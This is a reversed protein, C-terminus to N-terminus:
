LDSYALTGTADGSRFRKFAFFSSASWAFFSFIAFAAAGNTKGSTAMNSNAGVAYAIGGAFWFLAIIASTALEAIPAQPFGRHTLM